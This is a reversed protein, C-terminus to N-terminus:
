ATRRHVKYRSVQQTNSERCGPCLRNHRSVSDFNGCCKLCQRVETDRRAIYHRSITRSM